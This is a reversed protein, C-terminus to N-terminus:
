IARADSTATRRRRELDIAMFGLQNIFHESTDRRRAITEGEAIMVAEEVYDIRAGAGLPTFSLTASHSWALRGNLEFRCSQEVRKNPVIRSITATCRVEVDPGVRTRFFSIGGPRFDHGFELCEFASEGLQWDRFLDPESVIEFLTEVRADVARAIHFAGTRALGETETEQQRDNM